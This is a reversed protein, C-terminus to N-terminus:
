VGAGAASIPVWGIPGFLLYRFINPIPVDRGVLCCAVVSDPYLGRSLRVTCSSIFHPVYRLIAAYHIERSAADKTAFPCVILCERISLLCHFRDISTTSRSPITLISCCSQQRPMILSPLLLLAACIDMFDGYRNSRAGLAGNAYAIANSEAWAIHEGFNPADHTQYPACTFTPKAGM